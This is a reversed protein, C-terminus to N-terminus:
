NATTVLEPFENLSNFWRMQGEFVQHEMKGIARIMDKTRYYPRLAFVKPLDVLPFRYKFAPTTKYFTSYKRRYKWKLFQLEDSSLHKTRVNAWFGNYKRFNHPNTILNERLLEERMGTKPYPTIIQDSFFDLDHKDFFEYNQAIDEERDESHGIILGGIILINYKHLYEIARKTKDLIDGKKMKELNRKSVNEVGLFVMEFGARAMKEILRESSSMGVSSAQVVYSVDNHGASIIADCLEELRKINLCVNDDTIALYKAGQKKANAIDKIVREIPYTRFSRGYMQNMSCFNCPMTCGRSTEVVDLQTTGFAYGKLLRNTRNPIAIKSLDELPRPANHIFSGDRSFSLGKIDEYRAKGEIAQLLEGFSLDGEGRIIFDFPEAKGEKAIEESMLTAHYGGLVTKVDPNLGKVFTAIRSATHFQFSMATLGILDPKHDNLLGKINEKLRGRLLVLDVMNIEHGKTNGTISSLALNPAQWSRLEPVMDPMSFLLIKM